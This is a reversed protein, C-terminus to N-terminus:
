AHNEVIRAGKEDLIMMQRCLIKEPFHVPGGAYLPRPPPVMIAVTHSIRLESIYERCSDVPEKGLGRSPRPLTHETTGQLPAPM